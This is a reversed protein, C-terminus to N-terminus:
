HWDHKCRFCQRARPTRCLGGCRPCRNLVVDTAHERLVREVVRRRFAVDGLAALERVETEESVSALSQAVPGFSGNVGFLGMGFHAKKEAPTLLHEYHQFVYRTLDDMPEGM